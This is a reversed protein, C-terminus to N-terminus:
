ELPSCSPTEKSLSMIERCQFIRDLVGSDKLYNFLVDALITHGLASPHPDQKSVTLSSGEYDKIAHKFMFFSFADGAELIPLDLDRLIEKLFGTFYTTFVIVQFGHRLSLSKLEAMAARYADPGVMDKYQAPVRSPDKEVDDGSANLPADILGDHLGDHLNRRRQTLRSLFYEAVFSKQLSFYNEEKRIFNPLTLDNGIYGIIVLDPNYQLGKVKLTEVEMATNYGPVATNIIEWKYSDFSSQSLYQSLLALYHEDDGVGWGFMLSDGLGVIRITESSKATNYVPGRFGHSNITVPKNMFIVSLDPILEYIIRPNHSLRILQRLTAHQNADKSHEEQGLNRFAHLIKADGYYLVVRFVVEILILLLTISFLSVCLNLFWRRIATLVHHKRLSKIDMHARYVRWLNASCQLFHGGLARAERLRRQPRDKASM